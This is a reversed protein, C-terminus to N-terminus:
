YIFNGSLEFADKILEVRPLGQAYTVAAVDFRAKKDLLHKEKLFALAAKSIQRQKFRTVAESPLGFKDSYRAKVEIFCYTDKDCAIIDIEGLRTRYNRAIIKYGSGKLFDVAAEEGSASLALNEKSM